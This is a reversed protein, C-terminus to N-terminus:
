DLKAKRVHGDRGNYSIDKQYLRNRKEQLIGDMIIKRVGFSRCYREDYNTACMAPVVIGLDVGMVKNPDLSKERVPHKYSIQIYYQYRNRNRKRILKSACLEYSGSVINELIRYTHNDKANTVFELLSSIETKGLEEEYKKQGRRSLIKLSCIYKRASAGEERQIKSDKKILPIPISNTFVMPPNGTGKDIQKSYSNAGSFY